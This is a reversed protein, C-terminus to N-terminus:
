RMKCARVGKQAIGAGRVKGGKKYGKKAMGGKKFLKYGGGIRGLGGGGGGGIAQAATGLESSAKDAATSIDEVYGTAGGGTAPAATPGGPIPMPMPSPGPRRAPSMRLDGGAAFKKVKKKKTKSKINRM